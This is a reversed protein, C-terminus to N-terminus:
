GPFASHAARRRGAVARVDFEFLRLLLPRWAFPGEDTFKRLTLGSDDWRQLGRIIAGHRQRWIRRALVSLKRLGSVDNQPTAFPMLIAKRARM